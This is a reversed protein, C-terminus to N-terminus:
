LFYKIGKMKLGGYIWKLKLNIMNQYPNFGELHLYKRM